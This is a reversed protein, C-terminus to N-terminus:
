HSISIEIGKFNNLETGPEFWRGKAHLAFQYGVVGVSSLINRSYCSEFRRPCLGI